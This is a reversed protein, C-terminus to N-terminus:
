SSNGLQGKLGTLKKAFGGGWSYLLKVGGDQVRENDKEGLDGGKIGQTSGGPM